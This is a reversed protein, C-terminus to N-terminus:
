LWVFIYVVIFFLLIVFKYLFYNYAGVNDKVVKDWGRNSLYWCVNDRYKNITITFAIDFLLGGFFGFFIYWLMEWTWETYGGVLAVGLGFLIFIRFVFRSHHAADTIPQKKHKIKYGDWLGALVGFLIVLFFYILDKM